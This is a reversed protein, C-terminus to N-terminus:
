GFGLSSSEITSTVISSQVTSTSGGSQVEQTFEALPVGPVKVPLWADAQPYMNDLSYVNGGQILFLGQAGGTTISAVGYLNPIPSESTLFFVYFQGVSLTPYGTVNMTTGGVTGDIQAVLQWDGVKPSSVGSLVTTVTANYITVPVLGEVPGGVDTSVNVGVTQESTVQAVEVADSASKLAGLTKYWPWVQSLNISCNCPFVLTASTFGFNTDTSSVTPGSALSSSAGSTTTSDSGTASESGLDSAHNSSRNHYMVVSALTLALIATIAISAIIVRRNGTRRNSSAIM